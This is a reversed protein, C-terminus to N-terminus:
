SLGSRHTRVSTYKNELAVICQSKLIKGRRMCACNNHPRFATPDLLAGNGVPNAGSRRAGGHAYVIFSCYYLYYVFLYFYFYPTSYHVIESLILRVGGGGGHEAM